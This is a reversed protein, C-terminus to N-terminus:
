IGYKNDILIYMKMHDTCYMYEHDRILRKVNKYMDFYPLFAELVLLLLSIDMGSTFHPNEFGRTQNTGTEYFAQLSYVSWSHRQIASLM